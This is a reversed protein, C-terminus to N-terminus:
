YTTDKSNHIVKIRRDGKNKIITDGKHIKINFDWFTDYLDYEKGNVTVFPIGKVDYRVKQVAGNFNWNLAEKKKVPFIYLRYNHSYM